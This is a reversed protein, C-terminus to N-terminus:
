RVVGVDGMARRGSSRPKTALSPSFAQSACLRRSRTLSEDDDWGDDTSTGLEETERTGSCGASTQAAMATSM